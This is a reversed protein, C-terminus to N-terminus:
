VLSLVDVVGLCFFIWSQSLALLLFLLKKHDGNLLQIFDWQHSTKLFSMDVSQNGESTNHNSAAINIGLHLGGHELTELALRFYRNTQNIGFHLLRFVARITFHPFGELENVLVTAESILLVDFDLLKWLINWFSLSGSWHTDNAIIAVDISHPWSITYFNNTQITTLRSFGVSHSTSKLWNEMCVSVQYGEPNYFFISELSRQSVLFSQESLVLFVFKWSDPARLFYDIIQNLTECSGNRPM